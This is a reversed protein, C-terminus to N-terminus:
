EGCVNVRKCCRKCTLFPVGLWSTNVQQALSVWVDTTPNVPPLLAGVTRCALSLGCVALLYGDRVKVQLFVLM